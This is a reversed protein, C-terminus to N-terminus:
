MEQTIKQMATTIERNPASAPAPVSINTVRLTVKPGALQRLQQEVAKASEGPLIRCNLTATARQPLANEAHGAQLMTAVCTSRLLAGLDPRSSIRAIADADHDDHLITRMAEALEGSSARSASEFYLRVTETIHVPFEYQSIRTLADTLEYIANAKMPRAAHGGPNTTELEVTMFQKEALEVTHIAAKGDALEGRGGESIGYAARVLEKKNNVLWAAGNTPVDLREEDATLALIIDRTPKFGERKLQLFISVFAAASAKDDIAGRATFNGESEQLVFPDTKWDERKAEIVDLHALLLIPEKAGTGRFRAVLNGKKPFPEFLQVDDSSFGAELLRKQVARAALTTDGASHTTNTEVMEKYIEYFLKREAGSEAAHGAAALTTVVLCFATMKSVIM